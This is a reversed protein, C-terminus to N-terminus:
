LVWWGTPCIQSCTSFSTPITNVTITKCLAANIGFALFHGAAHDIAQMPFPRPQIESPKSDQGMYEAFAQAEDFNFGTATQVLSDFQMIPLLVSYIALRVGKRDKWPGEWGWACLNACVIGQKLQLVNTTSFGKGALGGPRYAQLFVDADKILHKLKAKDIDDNLDLRTTLKGRSTDVDFM